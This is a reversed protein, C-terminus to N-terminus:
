VGMPGNALVCESYTRQGNETLFTVDGTSWFRTAGDKSEYHPNVGDDVYALSVVRGDSLALDLDRAATLHFVALISKNEECSFSVQLDEPGVTIKEVAQQPINTRSTQRASEPVERSLLYAGAIITAVVIIISTTLNLQIKM